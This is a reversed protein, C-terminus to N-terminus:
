GPDQRDLRRQRRDDRAEGASLELALLSRLSAGIAEEENFGPMVIAVKPEIGTDPKSRYFLSFIFRTIIYSAVSVSYIGFFVNNFMPGIFAAKYSMVAVLLVILYVAACIRLVRNAMLNM